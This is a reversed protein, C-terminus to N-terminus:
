SSSDQVIQSDLDLTLSPHVKKIYESIGKAYNLIVGDADTLFIKNM